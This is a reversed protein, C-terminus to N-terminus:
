NRAVAASPAYLELVGANLRLGVILAGPGSADAGAAKPTSVLVHDSPIEREFWHYGIMKDGERTLLTISRDGTYGGFEGREDENFDRTYMLRYEKGALTVPFGADYADDALEAMTWSSPAESGNEPAVVLRSRMKDTAKGEIYASYKRGAIEFSVAGKLFVWHIMKRGNRFQAEGGDPAFGVFWNKKNEDKGGFVHVVVGGARFAARTARVGDLLPALPIRAVPAGAAPIQPISRLDGFDRGPVAAPLSFAPEGLAASLEAPGASARGAALVAAALLIWRPSHSM